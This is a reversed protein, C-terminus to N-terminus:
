AGLLRRLLEAALQRPLRCQPHVLIRSLGTSLLVPDEGVGHLSELFWLLGHTEVNRHTAFTKLRADGTLLKWGRQQALALAFADAVSLAPDTQFYNQALTTETESLEMVQLGMATWSDGSYPKIELSYLLDPVILRFQSGLSCNLLGGRELDILVSSDSVLIDM